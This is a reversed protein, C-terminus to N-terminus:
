IAGLGAAEVVYERKNKFRLLKLATNGRMQLQRDKILQVFAKNPERM